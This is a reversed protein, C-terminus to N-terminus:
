CVVGWGSRRLPPPGEVACVQDVLAVNRPLAAELEVLRAKAVEYGQPASM